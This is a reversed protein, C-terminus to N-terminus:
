AVPMRYPGAGGLFGRLGELSVGMMLAAKTINYRNTLARADILFGALHQHDGPGAAVGLSSSGTERVGPKLRQPSG